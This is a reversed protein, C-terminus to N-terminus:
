HVILPEAHRLALALLAEATRVDPSVAAQGLKVNSVNLREAADALRQKLRRVVNDLGMADTHTLLAAVQSGSMKGTVDSGRLERRLAEQLQAVADSPAAVDVLILALRLDFRRARELEEQIRASFGPANPALSDALSVAVDFSSLAGLLWTQLVAACTETTAAAEPTFATGHSPRLDLVALDDKALPMVRVIHDPSYLRDFVTAALGDVGQGIAAIRREQGMRTLTLSASSAKVAHALEHVVRMAVLEPAKAEEKLLAEFRARADEQRRWAMSSLQTGAVQGVLRLVADAEAPVSGILVLVWDARATASLPVLVAEHGTGDDGLGGWTEVRVLGPDGGFLHANLHRPEANPQVGPLWTHLTLEGALNRRYVRADVDYWVAAAQVLANALSAEDASAIVFELFSLAGRLRRSRHREESLTDSAAFDAEVIARALDSWPEADITRGPESQTGRVALLGAPQRRKSSRGLPYIRYHLGSGDLRQPRGAALADFLASRVASSDHIMRSLDTGGEPYLNKLRADLIEVEVGFRVRARELLQSLTSSVM